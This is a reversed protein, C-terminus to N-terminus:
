INREKAEQEIVQSNGQYTQKAPIKNKLEEM